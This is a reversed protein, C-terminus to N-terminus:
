LLPAFLRAVPAGIRIWVKQSKLDRDMRTANEFDATLMTSVERAVSTDFFMAMAEFNLRFSRNDLNSTGIASLAEDVLVVKQHMFGPQYRWIEVGAQRLEDFYAFAALWPIKHDIVEPVMLRVEVGRLAALKLASLIDTDPVCYPSAIWVRERAAAIAAFFFMAGTEMEDGPGTAVILGTLDRPQHTNEWILPDLIVESTRWHWDEAFILQLQAVMPGRIEIHTDRWPGFRADRGMYEDGVNHGGIFGVTGDVIVTKRHNRFNLQFRQKPGRSGRREVLRIGAERLGDLYDANLKRSGVADVMFWVTVGRAAAAMLRERLSQGLADDHVIFFQVLVYSEASDIAAFIAEFTAAGDVLLRMDNGRVIPLDAIKEFPTPNLTPRQLPAHREGFSKVRTIVQESARRSTRYGPLKHHGLFLFAPVGIYPTAILVAVWGVSGQPTRATSLIRWAFYIATAELALFAGLYLTSVRGKGLM